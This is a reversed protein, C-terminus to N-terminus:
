KSKLEPFKYYIPTEIWASIELYSDILAKVMFEKKDLDINENLMLHMADTSEGIKRIEALMEAALVKDGPFLTEMKERLNPM